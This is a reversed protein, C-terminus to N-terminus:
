RRTVAPVIYIPFDLGQRSRQRSRDKRGHGLETGGSFWLACASTSIAVILSLLTTTVDYRLGVDVSYALMGVFHMSWIGIGLTVAGGVLWVRAMGSHSAAVRAALALATYSTLVAVAISLAVLWPNYTAQM